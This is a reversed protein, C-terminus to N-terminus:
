KNYNSQIQIPDKFAYQHTLVECDYVHIQDKKKVHHKGLANKDIKTDKTPTIVEGTYKIINGGAM